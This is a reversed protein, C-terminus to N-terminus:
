LIELRTVAPLFKYMKSWQNGSEDWNLELGAEAAWLSLSAAGVPKDLASTEPM